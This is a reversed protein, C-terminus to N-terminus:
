ECFWPDMKQKYKLFALILKITKLLNGDTYFAIQVRLRWMHKLTETFTQYLPGVIFISTHLLNM